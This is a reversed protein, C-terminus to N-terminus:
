YDRAPEAVAGTARAQRRPRASAGMSNSRLLRCVASKLQDEHFPKLLVPDSPLRDIWEAASATMISFPIRRRRLLDAVPYVRDSYPLRVDPLLRVDLLAADLRETEALIMAQRLTGVPGIVEIGMRRLIADVYQAM